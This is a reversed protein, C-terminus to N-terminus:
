QRQAESKEAAFSVVILAEVFATKIGNKIEPDTTLGAVEGIVKGVDRKLTVAADILHLAQTRALDRFPNHSGYRPVASMHSARAMELDDILLTPVLRLTNRAITNELYKEM